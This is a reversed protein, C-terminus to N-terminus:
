GIVLDLTDLHCRGKVVDTFVSDGRLYESSGTQQGEGLELDDLGVGLGTMVDHDFDREGPRDGFHDQLVVFAEVTRSIGSAQFVVVYEGPGPDESHSVHNRRHSSRAGVAGSEAKVRCHGLYFCVPASEVVGDNDVGANVEEPFPM